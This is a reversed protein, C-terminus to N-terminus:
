ISSNSDNCLLACACSSLWGSVHASLVWAIKKGSLRLSGPVSTLPKQLLPRLAESSVSWILPILLIPPKDVWCPHRVPPSLPLCPPFRTQRDHQALVYQLHDLRSANCHCVAWLWQNSNSSRFPYISTWSSINKTQKKKSCSYQGTEGCYLVACSAWFCIIQNIAMKYLQNIKQGFRLPFIGSM